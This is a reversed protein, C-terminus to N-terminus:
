QTMGSRTAPVVVHIQSKKAIKLNSNNPTARINTIKNEERLNSRPRTWEVLISDTVERRGLIGLTADIIRSIRAAKTSSLLEYVNVYQHTFASAAATSFM